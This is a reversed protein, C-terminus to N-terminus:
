TKSSKNRTPKRKLFAVLGVEASSLWRRPRPRKLGGLANRPNDRVAAILRPHVYSKRSMAVTNGLAEAVPEVMTKVSLRQGEESSLMQEFAIVSAGWTRFSKATFDGGSAERLYANVDASTIAHPEGDDGIYQFLNQGPLEQCKSVIRKLNADTITVEHMIGHKGTFKMKLKGNRKLLHRNRLTTAGFSKNSRAYHENGIRIYQTDLLRVVAALVTDRDLKRPKLDAEVRKRIRPLAAGFELTSGYKSKDRRARFEDHYRYQKRGRADRGTAQLHGDPDPCFWADTYAPPLAIANLRDIEDRDSVRKGDADVYAWGTGKCQRTIGPKSDNSHRLM